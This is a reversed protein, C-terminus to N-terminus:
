LTVAALFASNGTFRLRVWGGPLATSRAAEIQQRIVDLLPPSQQQRLRAHAVPDKPNLRVVESFYREAHSGEFQGFFQRPGERGRGLRFDCVV